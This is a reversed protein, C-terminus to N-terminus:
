IQTTRLAGHSTFDSGVLCLSMKGGKEFTDRATLLDRDSLMPLWNRTKNRDPTGVGVAAALRDFPEHFEALAPRQTYRYLLENFFTAPSPNRVRRMQQERKTSRPRFCAM